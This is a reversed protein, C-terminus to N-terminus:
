GSIMESGGDNKEKRTVGRWVVISGRMIPPRARMADEDACTGKPSSGLEELLQSDSFFVQLAAM